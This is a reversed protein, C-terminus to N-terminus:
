IKEPIAFMPFAKAFWVVDHKETFLGAEGHKRCMKNLLHYLGPPVSVGFRFNKEKNSAFVNLRSARIDKNQNVIGKCIDYNTAVEPSECCSPPTTGDGLYMSGCVNCYLRTDKLWTNMISHLFKKRDLTQSM